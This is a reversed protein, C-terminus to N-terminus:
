DCSEGADVNGAEDVGTVIVTCCEGAAPECGDEAEMAADQKVFTPAWANYIPEQLLHGNDDHGERTAVVRQHQSEVRWAAPPDGPCADWFWLAALLAIM